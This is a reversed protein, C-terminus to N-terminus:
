SQQCYQYLVQSADTTADEVNNNNVDANVTCFGNLFLDHNICSFEIPKTSLSPGEEAGLLSAHGGVASARGLVGELNMM